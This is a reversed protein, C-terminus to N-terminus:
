KIFENHFLNLLEKDDLNKAPVIWSHSLPTELTASIKSNLKEFITKARIKTDKQECLECGVLTLCWYEESQKSIDLFNKDGVQVGIFVDASDELDVATIQPRQSGLIQNFTSFLPSTNPSNQPAWPCLNGELETIASRDLANSHTNIYKTTLKRVGKKLNLTLTQNKHGDDHSHGGILGAFGQPNYTSLLHAQIQKAAAINAARHHLVKAGYYSSLFAEEWSIQEYRKANSVMKPDASFYADVDSYIYAKSANFHAALALASTDSGGRGLTTIEKNKSVGQFGAVIVVKNEDLASQIREGRIELIEAEGHHDSTIIGSQSGTLSLAPIGLDLIAMSLLSMSVREGTSVLMDIERKHHTRAHPSVEDALQLLQDTSKGMASVVVVVRQTKDYHSKVILAVRRVLEPSALSSGGFKLVSIEKM